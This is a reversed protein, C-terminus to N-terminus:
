LSPAEHGPSIVRNKRALNRVLNDLGKQETLVGVRVGAELTMGAFHREALFADIDALDSSGTIDHDILLEIKAGQPALFKIAKLEHLRQPLNALSCRVPLIGESLMRSQLVPWDNGSKRSTFNPMDTHRPTNM